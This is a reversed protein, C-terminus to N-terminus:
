RILDNLISSAAERAGEGPGQIVLPYPHFASRIIIANETGQLHYAPHDPSVNRLGISSRFGDGDKELYAVFRRRFGQAEAARMQRAFVPEYAELAPYFEEFPREFVAAPIVPEVAVDGEELRVGAERALIMLKRLADRGGLDIRPDRETLGEEQARRVLTAFSEGGPRYTSLIQNLTCSVVAEISDIEDCSNTERSISELFPLAAGVTTEYRFHVGNERAAAKLAAYQVYPVALSRRNSTVVHIGAAFLEPFRQYLTESDTCDVFVAGKPALSCVAQIFDDAHAPADALSGCHGGLDISYRKSDAIGALFLQKGTREAVTASSEPILQVLAKGVAGYGAVFVPVRQLPMSEFFARHLAKLAPIEVAPRLTLLLNGEEVRSRLPAIGAAALAQEAEGASTGGVLCVEVLDGKTASAIGVLGEQGTMTGIVTKGGAPDFTNRIEIAIGATMAPAVTPAYLVKAGHSAMQLAAGYSMAPITRARRVQRPNATMIGPVDTWIQLSEAELAAAFLAASYDSGGRGLTTVGGEPTGCIFGPAVFIEADSAAVANRINSYSLPIDGKILLKRADLWLTRYGESRLKAELIHTSFLEGYTPKEEAPARLLEGFLADLRELLSTREAGTFLRRVIEEHRRRLSPDLVGGAALAELADTCGSIASSVLVVRGKQAEQEVIDLVRSMNTASGVSSGGFKLVRYM